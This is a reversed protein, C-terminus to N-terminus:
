FRGARIARCAILRYPVIRRARPSHRNSTRMIAPPFIAQSSHDSSDCLSSVHHPYWIRVTSFVLPSCSHVVRAHHRHAHRLDGFRDMSPQHGTGDIHVRRDSGAREGIRPLDDVTRHEHRDGAFADVSMIENGLDTGLTGHGRHHVMLDLVGAHGLDHHLVGDRSQTCQGPVVDFAAARLVVRERHDADGAGDALGGGLIQQFRQKRADARGHGRHPREVILNTQRQGRELHVGSGSEKHRLHAGVMHALDGIQRRQNRRVDGDHELHAHRMQTLEARRLANGLGLGLDHASQHGIAHGDQVGVVGPHARHPGDRRAVDDPKAQRLFVAGLWRDGGLVHAAVIQIMRGERQVDVPVAGLHREANAALM